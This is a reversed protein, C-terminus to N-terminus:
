KVSSQPANANTESAVGEGEKSSASVTAKSIKGSAPGAVFRDPPKSERPSKRGQGGSRTQEDGEDPQPFIFTGYETTVRASVQRIPPAGNEPQKGANERRQNDSSDTGSAPNTSASNTPPQNNSGSAGLVLSPFIFTGNETSTLIIGPPILSIEGEPREGSNSGNTPRPGSQHNGPNSAGSPAEGTGHDVPTPESQPNGSGNAGLPPGTSGFDILPPEDEQNGSGNAGPPTEGHQRNPEGNSSKNEQTKPTPAEFALSAYADLTDERAKFSGAPIPQRKDSPIQAAKKWLKFFSSNRTVSHDKRVVTVMNGKTAYVTYPDPDYRSQTKKTKTWRFLVLDGLALQNPKVHMKEDAYAKAKAKAEGNYINIRVM